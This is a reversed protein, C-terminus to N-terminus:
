SGRHTTGDSLARETVRLVLAGVQLLHGLAALLLQPLEGVLVVGGDVLHFLERVFDLNSHSRNLM